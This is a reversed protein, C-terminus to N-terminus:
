FLWNRQRSIKGPDRCSPGSMDSTIQSHFFNLRTERFHIEKTHRMQGKLTFIKLDCSICSSQMKIFACDQTWQPISFYAMTSNLSSHRTWGENYKPLMVVSLCLICCFTRGGPLQSFGIQTKKTNSLMLKVINHNALSPMIPLIPHIICLNGM